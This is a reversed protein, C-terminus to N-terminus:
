KCCISAQVMNAAVTNLGKGGGCYESGALISPNGNASAATKSASPIILCDYGSSVMGNLGYGCCKHSKGTIGKTLAASLEFDIVANASWCIRCMGRERRVCIRQNQDSLHQGGDFNFTKVSDTTLGFFFQTCGSPALNEYDCPFQTVLVNWQRVGMAMEGINFGLKNCADNSDVYM